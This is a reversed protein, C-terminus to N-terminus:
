GDDGARRQEEHVLWVENTVEDPGTEISGTRRAPIM